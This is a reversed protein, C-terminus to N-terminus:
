YKMETQIKIIERKKVAGLVKKKGFLCKQPTRSCKSFSSESTAPMVSLILFRGFTLNTAHLIKNKNIYVYM